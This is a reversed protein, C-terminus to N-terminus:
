VIDRKSGFVKRLVKNNCLGLRKEERANLSLTECEYLALHLIISKYIKINVNKLCSVTFLIAALM